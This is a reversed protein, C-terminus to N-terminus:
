ATPARLSSKTPPCAVSAKSVKVKLGTRKVKMKEQRSASCVWVQRWFTNSVAVRKYQTEDYLQAHYVISNPKHIWLGYRGHRASARSQVDVPRGQSRAFTKQEFKYSNNKITDLTKHTIVIAPRQCNGIKTLFKSIIHEFCM